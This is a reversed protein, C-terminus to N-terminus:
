PVVAATISATNDIRIESGNMFKSEDSILYVIMHGIDEPKAYRLTPTDEHVPASKPMRMNPIAAAMEGALKENLPTDVGGPCVANCRINLQNQACYVAVARTYAAVAGKSACYPAYFYLGTLAGISAINVISGGGSEIMAPLAYKCGLFTGEMNVAMVARFDELTATVPDGVRLIGANNVLGDLRGYKKMVHKILNDWAAEQSVDMRHFEVNDLKAAVTEGADDIDVLIVKAGDAALLEVDAKGIGMAGGTVIVVKDKVRNGM